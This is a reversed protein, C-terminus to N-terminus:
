MYFEKSGLSYRIYGYEITKIMTRLTPHLSPKKAHFSSFGTINAAYLRDSKEMTATSTFNSFISPPSANIEKTEPTGDQRKRSDGATTSTSLYTESEQDSKVVLKEIKTTDNKAESEGANNDNTKREDEEQVKKEVDGNITNEVEGNKTKVNEESEANKDKDKDGDGNGLHELDRWGM